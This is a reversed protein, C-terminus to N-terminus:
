GRRKFFGNSTMANRKEGVRQANENMKVWFVIFTPFVEIALEKTWTYDQM